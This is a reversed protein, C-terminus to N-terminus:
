ELGLAKKARALDDPKIVIYGEPDKGAACFLNDINIGARALKDCIHVLEGPQNKIKLVISDQAEAQYGEKKLASLAASGDSVLMRVISIDGLGEVSIAEINIKKGLSKAMRLLEGPHNRISVFIEKPM